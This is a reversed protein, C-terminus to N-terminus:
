PSPATRLASLRARARRRPVGALWFGLVAGLAFGVLAGYATVWYLALPWDPHLRRFQSESGLFEPPLLQALAVFVFVGVVGILASVLLRMTRSLGKVPIFNMNLSGDATLFRSQKVSELYTDKGLEGRTFALTQPVLRRAANGGERELEMGNGCKPCLLSHQRLLPILPIFFITFWTVSRHLHWFELEACTSCRIALAPGLDRAAGRRYGWIIAM